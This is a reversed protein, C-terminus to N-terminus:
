KAFTELFDIMEKIRADSMKGGFGMMGTGPKGKAIIAALAARDATKWYNATSFATPRPTLMSSAPGDGGGRDGHCFACEAAYLGAAATDATSPAAALLM